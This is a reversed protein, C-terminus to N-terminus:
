GACCRDHRTRALRIWRRGRGNPDAGITLLQHAQARDFDRISLLPDLKRARRRRPPPAFWRATPTIRKLVAAEHEAQGRARLPSAFLSKATRPAPEATFNM